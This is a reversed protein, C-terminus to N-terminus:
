REGRIRHWLRRWGKPRSEDEPEWAESPIRGSRLAGDVRERQTDAAQRVGAPDEFSSRLVRVEAVPGPKARRLRFKPARWAAARSCWELHGGYAETTEFDRGCRVCHAVVGM